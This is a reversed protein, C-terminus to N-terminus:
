KITIFTIRNRLIELIRTILNLQILLRNFLLYIDKFFGLLILNSDFFSSIGRVRM